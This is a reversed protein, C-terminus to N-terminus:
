RVTRTPIYWYGLLLCRMEVIYHSDIGGYLRGSGTSEPKTFLSYYRSDPSSYVALVSTVSQASLCVGTALSVNRSSLGALPLWDM